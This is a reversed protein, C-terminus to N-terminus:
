RVFVGRCRTLAEAPIVLPSVSTVTVKKVPKIVALPVRHGKDFQTFPDTFDIVDEHCYIESMIALSNFLPTLHSSITTPTNVSSSPSKVAFGDMRKDLPSTM